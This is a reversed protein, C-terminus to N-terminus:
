VASRLQDREACMREFTRLNAADIISEFGRYFGVAAEIAAVENGTLMGRRPNGPTSNDAILAAFIRVDADTM